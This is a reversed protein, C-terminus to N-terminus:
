AADDGICTVADKMLMTGIINYILRDNKYNATM